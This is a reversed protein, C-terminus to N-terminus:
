VMDRLAVNVDRKLVELSPTKRPLCQTYLLSFCSDPLFGGGWWLIEEIEEIMKVAVCLQLVQQLCCLVILYEPM